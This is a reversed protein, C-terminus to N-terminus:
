DRFIEPMWRSFSGLFDRKGWFRKMFVSPCKLKYLLKAVLFRGQSWTQQYVNQRVSWVHCSDSEPQLGVKQGWSGAQYTDVHSCATCIDTWMSWMCITKWRFYIRMASLVIILMCLKIIIMFISPSFTFLFMSFCFIVFWISNVAIILWAKKILYAFLVIM